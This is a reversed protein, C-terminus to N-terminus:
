WPIKQQQAETGSADREMSRNGFLGKLQGTLGAAFTDYNPARQSMMTALIPSANISAANRGGVNAGVSGRQLIGADLGGSINEPAFGTGEPNSARQGLMNYPNLKGENFQARMQEYLPGGEADGRALATRMGATAGQDASALTRQLPAGGMGTRLAASTFGGKVNDANENVQTVDAIKKAGVVGERTPAGYGYRFADLLPNASSGETLRRNFNRSRDAAGTTLEDRGRNAAIADTQNILSATKPTTDVVWGRGPVYRTQNGRADTQGATALEYQQDAMRKKLEYDQMALRLAQQQNGQQQGQSILNLIGSGVSGGIGILSIPDM